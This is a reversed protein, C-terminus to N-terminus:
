YKQKETLIFVKGEVYPLSFLSFPELKSLPSKYALILMVTIIIFIVSGNFQIKKMTMPCIPTRASGITEEKVAAVSEEIEM